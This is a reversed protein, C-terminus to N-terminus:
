ILYLKNNIEVAISQQSLKEKMDLCFNYIKDISAKLTDEHTYSLVLTIDEKVLKDSPTVWVGLAKSATAGGFEKALFKLTIDIWEDNNSKEDVNITSPVYIKVSSSLEICHKLFKM